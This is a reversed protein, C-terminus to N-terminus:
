LTKDGHNHRNLVLRADDLSKNALCDRDQPVVELVVFQDQDVVTRQVVGDSSGHIAPDSGPIRSTCSERRKPSSAAIVAPSSDTMPSKTITINGNM